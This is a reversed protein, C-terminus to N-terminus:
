CMGAFMWEKAEDTSLLVMGSKEKILEALFVHTFDIQRESIEILHDLRANLTSHLCPIFLFLEIGGGEDREPEIGQQSASIECRMCVCRKWIKNFSVNRQNWPLSDSNSKLKIDM